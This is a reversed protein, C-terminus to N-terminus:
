IDPMSLFFTRTSGPKPKPLVSACLRASSRASSRKTSIAGTTAPRERLAVIPVSVPRSFGASRATPEAAAAIIATCFPASITRTCSKAAVRSASATQRPTASPAGGGFAAELGFRANSSTKRRQLSTTSQLIFIRTAHAPRV